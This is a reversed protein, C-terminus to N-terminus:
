PGVYLDGFVSSKGDVTWVVRNRGPTLDQPIVARIKVVGAVFGEAYSTDLITSSVGGIKLSSQLNLPRPDTTIKGNITETVTGSLGAGTAYM